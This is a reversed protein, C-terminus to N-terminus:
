RQYVVEGGLITADVKLDFLQNPSLTRPDDALVAFDGLKGVAISGKDREEFAGKAAWITWSRLADEFAITEDAALSGGQAPSATVSAMGALPSFHPITGTSDTIAIPELDEKVLTRWPLGTGGEDDTARPEMAPTITVMSGLRKIRRIDEVSRLPYAHEFRHRLAKPSRRQAEEVANMGMVLAEHRIVHMMLQVGASHARYVFENFESQTFKLDVLPHGMGDNGIGDIFVKIGGFRFMDNGIGPLLGSELIGELSIVKPVHYYPRLRIPLEGATQQLQDARLDAQSFPLNCLTTLGKATFYEKAHARLAARVEDVSYEPLLPWVETAVGTPVGAEDRHVLAGPARPQRSDPEWLGILKFGLTNFVAIHLGTMVVVPHRDTIADLDQRTPMRKETLINPWGFSGRGIIWQGAPTQAAKARLTDLIATLSTFPPTHCDVQYSAYNCTMEFHCHDDIFGPVVVRGGADFLKAGRAAGRVATNSGILAIRGSRVLIAEEVSRRPELTILKANVLALDHGTPPTEWIGLVRESSSTKQALAKEGMFAAGLVAGCQLFDRRKM